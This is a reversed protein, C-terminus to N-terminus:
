YSDFNYYHHFVRDRVSRDKPIFGRHVYLPAISSLIRRFPATQPALLPSEMCCVVRAIASNDAALSQSHGESFLTERYIRTDDAFTKVMVDGNMLLGPVDRSYLLSRCSLSNLSNRQLEERLLFSSSIKEVFNKLKNNVKVSKVFRFFVTLFLQWM